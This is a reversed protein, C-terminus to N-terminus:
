FLANTEHQQPFTYKKHLKIELLTEAATKSEFYIKLLNVKLRLFRRARYLTKTPIGNCHILVQRDVLEAKQFEARMNIKLLVAADQSITKIKHDSKKVTVCLKLMYYNKPEEKDQQREGGDIRRVFKNQQHESGHCVKM